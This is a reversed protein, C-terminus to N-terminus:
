LTKHATATEYRHKLTVVISRCGYSPQYINFIIGLIRTQSGTFCVSIRVNYLLFKQYLIYSIYPQWLFKRAFGRKLTQTVDPVQRCFYTQLTLQRRFTLGASVQLVLATYSISLVIEFQKKMNWSSFIEPRWHYSLLQRPNYIKLTCSIKFNWISNPTACTVKRLIKLYSCLCLLLTYQETTFLVYLPRTIFFYHVVRRRWTWNGLGRLLNKNLKINAYVSFTKPYIKIKCNLIHAGTWPM